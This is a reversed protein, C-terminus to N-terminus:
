LQRIGPLLGRGPHLSVTTDTRPRNRPCALTSLVGCCRSEALHPKRAKPRTPTETDIKEMIFLSLTAHVYVHVCASVVSCSCTAMYAYM